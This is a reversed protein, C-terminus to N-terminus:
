FHNLVLSGSHVAELATAHLPPMENGYLGTEACHIQLGSVPITFTGYGCGFEVITEHQGDVFGLLDLRLPSARVHFVENLFMYFFLGFNLILCAFLGPVDHLWSRSFGFAHVCLYSTSKWFLLISTIIHITIVTIRIMNMIMIM